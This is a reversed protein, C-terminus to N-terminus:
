DKWIQRAAEVVLELKAKEEQETVPNGQWVAAFGCQPSIWLQKMAAEKSRKLNGKSMVTAAEDVQEKLKEISELNGNKSCILGLVVTKDLPVHKLADFSGSRDDDYELYLADVDMGTFVREAIHDYSGECFHLGKYNGRCIHLGIRLDKPRDKTCYNIARIYTDLLEAPNIGEARMGALTPEYCFFAFTPDDIQINRCGLQYLEQFEERYATGLDSFFEDDTRYINTDYSLTSGHRHHWWTPACVNIKIREVDQEPVVRKLAKFEEVYFPKTRKIKGNCYFTADSPAGMAYLMALPWSLSPCPRGSSSAGIHPMYRKFENIPRAPMFLMGELNEFVGDFFSAKKSEGDTWTALDLSRQLEVLETVADDEAQRLEALSCKHQEFLTRKEFLTPPRLLSGVHDARNIRKISSM